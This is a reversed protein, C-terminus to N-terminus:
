ELEKIGSNEIVNEVIGQLIPSAEPNNQIAQM